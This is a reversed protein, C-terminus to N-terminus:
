AYLNTDREMNDVPARDPMEEYFDRVEELGSTAPGECLESRTM